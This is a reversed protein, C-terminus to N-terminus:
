FGGTLYVRLTNTDATFTLGREVCGHVVELLTMLSDCEIYNDM